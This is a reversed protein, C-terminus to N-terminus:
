RKEGKQLVCIATKAKKIGTAKVTVYAPGSAPFTVSSVSAIQMCQNFDPSKPDLCKNCDDKRFFILPLPFVIYDCGNGYRVLLSLQFNLALTSHVVM